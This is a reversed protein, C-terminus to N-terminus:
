SILTQNQAENTKNAPIFRHDSFHLACHLRLQRVCVLYVHAMFAKAIDNGFLSAQVRTEPRRKQSGKRKYLCLTVIWGFAWAGLQSLCHAFHLFHSITDKDKLNNHSLPKQM